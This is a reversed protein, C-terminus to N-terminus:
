KGKGKGSKAAEPDPQPKAAAAAEAQARAQADAEAAAAAAAASADAEAQAAAAVAAAAAAAAAAEAEAQPNVAEVEDDPGFHVSLGEGEVWGAMVNLADINTFLRQLQGEDKVLVVASGFGPIVTSSEPEIGDRWVSNKVTVEIPFAASAAAMAAVMAALSAIKSM